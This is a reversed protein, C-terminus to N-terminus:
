QVVKRAWELHKQLGEEFPTVLGWGLERHARQTDLVNYPVDIRRASEYRRKITAGSVAEIVALVENVSLGVGSGINIVGRASEKEVARVFAQGVDEAYVYDRVAEGDGWITLPQKSMMRWIAAAIIGQPRDGRQGPGYPNGVRLTVARMSNCNSFAALYAEFAIKGAAYANLPAVPAIELIPREEVPGYVTGGSSAFVTVGVGSAKALEVLRMSGLINQEVDDSFTHNATGPKSGWALHIFADVSEFVRSDPDVDFVSGIVNEVGDISCESRDLSRVRYGASVFARAVHGGLFGAGGSIAVTKM